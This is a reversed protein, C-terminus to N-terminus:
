DDTYSKPKWHEADFPEPVYISSSDSDDDPEFTNGYQFREIMEYSNDPEDMARSGYSLGQIVDSTNEPADSADRGHQYDNLISTVDAIAPISVAILLIVILYKM